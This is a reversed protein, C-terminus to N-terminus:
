IGKQCFFRRVGGKQIFNQPRGNENKKLTELINQFYENNLLSPDIFNNPKDERDSVEGALDSEMMVAQVKDKLEEKPLQIMAQFEPFNGVEAGLIFCQVNAMQYKDNCKKCPLLTGESVAKDIKKQKAAAHKIINNIKQNYKQVFM